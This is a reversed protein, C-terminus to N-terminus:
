VIDISHSHTPATLPIEDTPGKQRVLFTGNPRGSLIDRSGERRFLLSFLIVGGCRQYETADLRDASVVHGYQITCLSVIHKPEDM